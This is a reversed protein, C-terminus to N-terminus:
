LVKCGGISGRKQGFPRKGRVSGSSSSGLPRLTINKEGSPIVNLLWNKSKNRTKLSEFMPNNLYEQASSFRHGNGGRGPVPQHSLSGLRDESPSVAHHGFFQLSSLPSNLSGHSFGGIQIISGNQLPLLPM